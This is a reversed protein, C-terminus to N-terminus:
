TGATRWLANTEEVGMEVPDTIGRKNCLVKGNSGPEYQDEPIHSTDYRNSM